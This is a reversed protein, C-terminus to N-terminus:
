HAQWGFASNGLPDFVGQGTGFVSGPALGQPLPSKAPTQYQPTTRLSQKRSGPPATSTRIVALKPIVCTKTTAVRNLVDGKAHRYPKYDSEPEMLTTLTRDIGDSAAATANLQRPTAKSQGTKMARDLLRSHDKHQAYYAFHGFNARSFALDLHNQPNWTCQKHSPMEFFNLEDPGSPPEHAADEPISQPDVPSEGSRSAQALPPSAVSESRDSRLRNKGRGSMSSESRNDILRLSSGSGQHNLLLRTMKQSQTMQSRPTVGASRGICKRNPSLGESGAKPTNLVALDVVHFPDQAAGREEDTSPLNQLRLLGAKGVQRVGGPM